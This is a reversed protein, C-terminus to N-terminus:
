VEVDRLLVAKGQWGVGLDYRGPALDSFVFHGLEDTHQRSVAEGQRVLWVEIQEVSPRPTSHPYLRGILQRGRPATRSGVFITLDDAQYRRQPLALGRLGVPLPATSVLTAELWRVVGQLRELLADLLDDDVAALDALERQCHPCDRVHAAVQLQEEAALLDAQWLALQESSPCSVRYRSVLLQRDLDALAAVRQACHPCRRVHEQVGPDAEGELYAVLDGPQIEAPAICRSM